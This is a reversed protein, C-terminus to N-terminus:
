LPRPPWAGPHDGPQERGGQARRQRAGTSPKAARPANPHSDNSDRHQLSGPWPNVVGFLLSTLLAPRSGAWGRHPRTRGGAPRSPPQWLLFTRPTCAPCHPSAQSTPPRPSPRHRARPAPGAVGWAPPSALHTGGLGRSQTLLWDSHAAGQGRPGEAPAAAPPAAPLQPKALDPFVLFDVPLQSGPEEGCPPLM